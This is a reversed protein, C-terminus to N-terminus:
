QGGDDPFGAAELVAVLRMANELQPSREKAFEDLSEAVAVILQEIPTQRLGDPIIFVESRAQRSAGLLPTDHHDEGDEPGHMISWGGKHKGFSIVFKGDPVEYSVEAPFGPKLENLVREVYRIVHSLRDDIRNLIDRRGPILALAQEVSQV